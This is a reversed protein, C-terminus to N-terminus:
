RPWRPPSCCGSGSSRSCGWAACGRSCRIPAATWRSPGCRTSRTRCRWLSGSGVTSRWRSGSEGSGQLPHATNTLQDGIIPFQALASGILQQQLAPNGHLVFGLVTTAILLLPFLSLFGYYTILSALYAGQDDVFKYIVALPFGLWRHRRQFRDLRDIVGVGSVAVGSVAM